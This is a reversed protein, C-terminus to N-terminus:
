NFRHKQLSVCRLDHCIHAKVLNSVVWYEQRLIRLTLQASGYLTARHNILLKSIRHKPLIIFHKEPYGLAANLLWNGLHLLSDEGIM